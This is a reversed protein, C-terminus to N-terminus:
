LSSQVDTDIMKLRCLHVIITETVSFALSYQCNSAAYLLAVSMPPLRNWAYRILISIQSNYYIIISNPL